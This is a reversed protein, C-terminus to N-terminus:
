DLQVWIAPRVALEKTNVAYGYPMVTGNASVFAASDGARGPTRLWWSKKNQKTLLLKKYREAEREDLLFVFDDTDAGGDTGYVSNAATAVQTRLIRQREFKSFSQEYFEHNLWKRLDSTAWVATGNAEQYALVANAPSKRVLLREKGDGATEAVLWKMAGFTVTDGPQANQLLEMEYQANKELADKYDGVQKTMLRVAKKYDGKQAAALSRQYSCELVKQETDRYGRCGSFLTDAREYDGIGMLFSGELYYAAPSRLFFVLALAAALAGLVLFRKVIGATRENQAAKERLKRCEAIQDPIDKYERKLKQFEAIVKGYDSASNAKAKMQMGTRYVEERHEARALPLRKKCRKKRLESDEYDGLAEFMQIAQKYMRVKDETQFMKEAGEMRRVAKQYDAERQQEPTLIIEEKKKKKAM